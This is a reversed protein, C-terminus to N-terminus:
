NLSQQLYALTVVVVVVVYVFDAAKLNVDILFYPGPSAVPRKLESTLLKSIQHFYIEM